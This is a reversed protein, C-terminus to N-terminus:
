AIVERKAREARAAAQAAMLKQEYAWAADELSMGDWFEESEEETLQSEPEEEKGCELISRIDRLVLLGISTVVHLKGAVLAEDIANFDKKTMTVNAERGDCYYIIYPEKRPATMDIGWM